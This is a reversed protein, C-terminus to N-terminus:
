MGSSTHLRAGLLEVREDPRRDREAQCRIVATGASDNVDPEAVNTAISRSM